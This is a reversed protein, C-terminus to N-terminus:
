EPRRSGVTGVVGVTPGHVVDETVHLYMAACPAYNIRLRCKISDRAPELRNKSM